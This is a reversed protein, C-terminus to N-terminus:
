GARLYRFANPTSYKLESHRSEEPPCLIPSTGFSPQCRDSAGKTAASLWAISLASRQMSLTKKTSLSSIQAIPALNEAQTLRALPSIKSSRRRSEPSWQDLSATTEQVFKVTLSLQEDSHDAARMQMITLHM